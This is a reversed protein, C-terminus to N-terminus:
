KGWKGKRYLLGIISYVAMDILTDDISENKAEIPTKYKIFSVEIDFGLLNMLRAMKDWMRVIIGIEGTGLINAPSYDANKDLHVQYMQEIIEKFGAAQEPCREETIHKTMTEELPGTGDDM